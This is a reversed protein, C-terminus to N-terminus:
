SVWMLIEKERSKLFAEVDQLVENWISVVEQEVTEIFKQRSRHLSKRFKLAFYYGSLIELVGLSLLAGFGDMSFLREFCGFIATAIIHYLTVDKVTWIRGMSMLFIVLISIYTLFQLFKFFLYGKQASYPSNSKLAESYDELKKLFNLWLEEKNWLNNLEKKLHDPLEASISISSLKNEVQEFLDKIEELLYSEETKAINTEPMGRKKFLSYILAAPGFLIRRNKVFNEITDDVLICAWEQAIKQVRKRLLLTVEKLAEIHIRFVHVVEKCRTKLIGIKDLVDEIEQEINARKIAKIEKANWERYIANKFLKWQNFVNNVNGSLAERASIYFIIPNNIGTKKLYESVIAAIDSIANGGGHMILDIKNFVFIFNGPHKVTLADSVFSYFSEDAYKEPSVVWVLIDLKELFAKVSSIHEIKISDFDPLDCLVLSKVADADHSCVRVPINLSTIDPPISRDKHHYIIISDTHPRRHDTSSINQGALANMITSKGVGTGGLLGIFLPEKSIKAISAKVRNIKQIIRTKESASLFWEPASNLSQELASIKEGLQEASTNSIVKLSM